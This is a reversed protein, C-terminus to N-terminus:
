LSAQAAHWAHGVCIHNEWAPSDDCGGGRMSSASGSTVGSSQTCMGTGDGDGGAPGLASGM